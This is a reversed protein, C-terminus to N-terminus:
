GVEHRFNFNTQHRTEADPIVKYKGKGPLKTEIQSKEFCPPDKKDPKDSAAIM